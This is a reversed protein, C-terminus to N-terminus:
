NGEGKREVVLLTVLVVISIFLGLFERVLEIYPSSAKMSDVISPMGDNVWEMANPLLTFMWITSVALMIYIYAKRNIRFATGFIVGAVLLYYIIWKVSDPDNWQFYAFLLFITGLLSLSIKRLM